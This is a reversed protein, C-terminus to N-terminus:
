LSESGGLKCTTRCGKAHRYRHVQQPGTPSVYQDVGPHIGVDDLVWLARPALALASTRATCSRPLGGTRVAPTAQHRCRGGRLDEALEGLLRDAAALRECISGSDLSAMM